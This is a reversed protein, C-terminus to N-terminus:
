LFGECAECRVLTSGEAAVNTQARATDALLLTDRCKCFNGPFEYPMFCCCICDTCIIAEISKSNVLTVSPHWCTSCM